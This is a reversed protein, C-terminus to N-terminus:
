ALFYFGLRHHAQYEFQAVPRAQHLHCRTSDPYDASSPLDVPWESSVVIFSLLQCCCDRSAKEIRMSHIIADARVNEELHGASPVVDLFFGM